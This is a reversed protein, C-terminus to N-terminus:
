LNDLMRVAHQARRGFERRLSIERLLGIRQTQALHTLRDFMEFSARAQVFVETNIDINDFQSRRLRAETENAADRDDRWEAATRKAHLHVMPIVEAPM